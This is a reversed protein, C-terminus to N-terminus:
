RKGTRLIAGHAACENKAMLNYTDQTTKGRKVMNLQYVDNFAPGSLGFLLYANPCGSRGLFLRYNKFGLKQVPTGRLKKVRERVLNCEQFPAKDFVIDADVVKLDPISFDLTTRIDHLDDKVEAVARWLSDNIQVYSVKFVREGLVIAQQENKV